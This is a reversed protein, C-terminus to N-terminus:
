SLTARCLGVASAQFEDDVFGTSAVLKAREVLSSALPMIEAGDAADTAVGEAAEQLLAAFVFGIEYYFNCAQGFGQSVSQSVSQCKM